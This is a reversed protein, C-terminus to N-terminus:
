LEKEYEIYRMLTSKRKHRDRFAEFEKNWIEPFNHENLISKIELLICAAQRYNNKKSQSCLVECEKWYQECIGLPYADTLQKSLNHGQDLNYGYYGRPNEKLNDLVEQLYGEEIRLQLYDHLNRKKLIIYFDKSHNEFDVVDLVTKCEDFWKRLQDSGCVEMMKILYIKKQNYDDAYYTYMLQTITDIGRKKKIAKQYLKIIKDEHESLAYENFLWKYVDDMGSDLKKLAEEVLKIAKHLHNKEKYYNALEIYDSGYDLNNEKITIFADEDGYELFISAAIGSYYNEGKSLLKALYLKEEKKQCLVLCSDVLLDDFGSNGIHFQEMMEDVIPQIFNWNTEVINDALANITMMADYVTDEDNTGGYENAEYIIAKAVNWYHQIQKQTLLTKDIDSCNNECYEM